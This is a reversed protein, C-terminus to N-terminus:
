PYAPDDVVEYVGPEATLLEVTRLAAYEVHVRPEHKTGEPYWTGPGYFYGYRLVTGPYAITSLELHEIAKRVPAPAAFAVSQALYRRVGAARAADIVADNGETRARNLGRVKLAIMAQRQPLDTIENIVVEPGFEAMEVILRPDYVDCVVPRAGLERLAEARESSRTLGAVDHGAKVLMPVLFRGIAGTAGAVFVKM